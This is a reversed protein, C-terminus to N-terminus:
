ALTVMVLGSAIGALGLWQTPRLREGMFAVAVLVAVAPGFSSSLGVLWTEAVELGIAFSIFGLVDLLGALFVVVFVARTREATSSLFPAFRPSGTLALVLLVASASSNAIRSVLVVPLWGAAKIPGAMSVTVVAFLVLAVVAFAIGPSVFRTGRLGGDFALGALIVGATAVAAGVAQGITLTEGRLLVALIVTLGGYAAVTPSVVALPGIRLATFFSLYAGAAALGAFAAAILIITDSPPGTRTGLAVFGLVLVSVLQAGVLVRLSGLRRGAIAAFVDVLGWSVAAGLGFLLGVPM